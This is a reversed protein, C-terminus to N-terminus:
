INANLKNNQIVKWGLFYIQSYTNENLCLYILIDIELHKYKDRGRLLDYNQFKNLIKSINSKM